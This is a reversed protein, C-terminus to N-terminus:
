SDSVSAAPILIVPPFFFFPSIFLRVWLVSQDQALVPGVSSHTQKAREDIFWFHSAQLFVISCCLLFHMVRIILNLKIKNTCKYM